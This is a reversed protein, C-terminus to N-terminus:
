ILIPLKVNLHVPSLSIYHNLASTQLNPHSKDSHTPQIPSTMNISHITLSFDTLDKIVDAVSLTTLYFVEGGGGSCIKVVNDAAGKGLTLVHM